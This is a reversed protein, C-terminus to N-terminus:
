RNLRACFSLDSGSQMERALTTPTMSRCKQQAWAQADRACAGDPGPSTAKAEEARAYGRRNTDTPRLLTQWPADPFCVPREKPQNNWRDSTGHSPARIM